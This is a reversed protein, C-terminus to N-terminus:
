MMNEVRVTVKSQSFRPSTRNLFSGLKNQSVFRDTIYRDSEATVIEKLIMISNIGSMSALCIFCFTNILDTTEVNSSLGSIHLNAYEIEYSFIMTSGNLFSDLLLVLVTPTQYRSSQMNKESSSGCAAPTLDWVSTNKSPTKCPQTCFMCLAM